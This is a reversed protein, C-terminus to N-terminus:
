QNTKRLSESKFVPLIAKHLFTGKFESYMIGRTTSIAMANIEDLFEQPFQVKQDQGMLNEFNEVEFICSSQLTAMEVQKDQSKVTVNTIVFVLKNEDNVRHQLKMDFHFANYNVNQDTPHQMTLNLLEVANIKYTIGTQNSEKTM